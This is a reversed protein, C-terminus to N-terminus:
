NKRQKSIMDSIRQGVDKVIERAEEDESKGEGDGEADGGEVAGLKSRATGILAKTQESGSELLAKTQESTIVNKAAKLGEQIMPVNSLDLDLEEEETARLSRLKKTKGMPLGVGDLKGKLSNSDRIQKLAAEM